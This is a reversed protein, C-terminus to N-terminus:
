PIIILLKTKSSEKLIHKKELFAKKISQSRFYIWYDCSDKFKKIVDIYLIQDRILTLGMQKALGIVNVIANDENTTSSKFNRILVCCSPTEDEISLFRTELFQTLIHKQQLFTDKICKTRFHVWYSCFHINARIVYIAKIQNRRLTLGMQKALEIVNVIASDESSDFSKVGWILVQNDAEFSAEKKEKLAIMDHGNSASASASAIDETDENKDSENNSDYMKISSNRVDAATDLVDADKLIQFEGKPQQQVSTSLLTNTRECAITSSGVEHYKRFINDKGFEMEREILQNVADELKKIRAEMRQQQVSQLVGNKSNDHEINQEETGATLPSDDIELHMKLMMPKYCEASKGNMHLFHYLHVCGIRFVANKSGNLPINYTACPNGYKESM